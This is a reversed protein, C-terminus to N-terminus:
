TTITRASVVGEVAKLAEVVEDDGQQLNVRASIAVPAVGDVPINQNITVINAGIQYLESIIASLVGPEDMLTLYLTLIRQTSTNEYPYVSDKYKYFASRSIGAMRAADSFSKARGQAMYKKAEVVKAFVDPLVKIDVLLYKENESM